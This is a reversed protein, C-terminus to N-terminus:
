QQHSYDGTRTSTQDLLVPFRGLMVLLIKVAVCAMLVFLILEFKFFLCDKM